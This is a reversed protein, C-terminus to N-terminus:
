KGQAIKYFLRAGAQRSMLRNSLAGAANWGGPVVSPRGAFLADLGVKAVHETPLLFRRAGKSPQYGTVMNFGTEMLGPSLVTVSVAPALEVHLAEGLSLIFAKSAGYAAMLPTPQYAATSSVLLIHGKGATRMRRGVGLTLEALSTMNLQLMASLRSPAQDLFAGAHGFAANNVLVDPRIELDDLERLLADASDAQSLDAPHVTASVGRTSKVEAALQRMPGESRATLAVDYGRAALDRVLAIGL